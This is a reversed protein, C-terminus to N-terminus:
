VDEWFYHCCVSCRGTVERLIVKIMRAGHGSAEVVVLSGVVKHVARYVYLIAPDKLTFVCTFLCQIFYGEAELIRSGKKM